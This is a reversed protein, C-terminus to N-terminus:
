VPRSIAIVRATSMDPQSLKRGYEVTVYLSEIQAEEAAKFAGLSMTTKGGTLDLAISEAGSLRLESILRAAVQHCNNVDDPDDVLQPELVKIGQEEAYDAIVRANDYSQRTALLAIAQPKYEDVLWLPIDPKSVTFVLGDWYADPALRHDVKPFHNRRLWSRIRHRNLFAYLLGGLSIVGTLVGLLIGVQDLYQWTQESFGFLNELSKETETM